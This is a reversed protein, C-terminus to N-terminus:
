YTLINTHRYTQINTQIETQIYTRENTRIYTQIDTQMYTHIYTFLYTPLDTPLHERTLTCRPVTRTRAARESHAGRKLPCSFASHMQQANSRQEVSHEHAHTDTARLPLPTCARLAACPRKRTGENREKAPTLTCGEWGTTTPRGLTARSPGSAEGRVYIVLVIVMWWCHVAASSDMATSHMTTDAATTEDM